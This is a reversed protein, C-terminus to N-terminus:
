TSFQWDICESPAQGNAIWHSQCEHSGPLDMCQWLVLVGSFLIVNKQEFVGDAPSMNMTLEHKGSNTESGEGVATMLNGGGGPGLGISNLHCFTGFKGWLPECLADVFM